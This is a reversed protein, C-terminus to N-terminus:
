RTFNKKLTENIKGLLDDVFTCLGYYSAIAIQRTNVTFSEHYDCSKKLNGLVPHELESPDSAQRPKPLAQPDYLEYFEM